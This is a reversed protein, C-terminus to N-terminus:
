DESTTGQVLELADAGVADGLGDRDVLLGGSHSLELAVGEGLGGVKFWAVLDLAREELENRAVRDGVEHPAPELGLGPKRRLGTVLAVNRDLDGCGLAALDQRAAEEEHASELEM